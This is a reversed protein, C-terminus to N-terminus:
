QQPKSFENPALEEPKNPRGAQQIEPRANVHVWRKETCLVYEYSM